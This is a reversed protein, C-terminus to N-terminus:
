IHKSHKSIYIVNTDEFQLNTARKVLYICKM